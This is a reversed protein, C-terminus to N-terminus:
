DEPMVIILLPPHSFNIKTGAKFLDATALIYVTVQLFLAALAKTDVTVYITLLMCIMLCPFPVTDKLLQM